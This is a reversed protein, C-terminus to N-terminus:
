RSGVVWGGGDAVRRDIGRVMRRFATYGDCDGAGDEAPAVTQRRRRTGAVVCPRTVGQTVLGRPEPTPM